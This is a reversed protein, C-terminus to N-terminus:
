KKDILISNYKHNIKYVNSNNMKSKSDYYREVSIYKHSELEEVIRQMTRLGCGTFKSLFHYPIQFSGRRVNANHFIYAYVFFGKLGIRKNSIAHLFIEIPIMHTNSADYMTGDYYSHDDNYESDRWFLKNPRKVKFNGSSLPVNYALLNEKVEFYTVFEVVPEDKSRNGYSDKSTTVGIPYDQTTTTYGKDDLWGDEKIILGYKVNNPSVGLIKMIKDRTFNNFDEGYKAYQYLYTNLFLYCYTFARENFSFESIDEFIENPMAITKGSENYNNYLVDKFKGYDTRTNKNKNTSLKM